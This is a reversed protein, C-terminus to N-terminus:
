YYKNLSNHGVLWTIIINFTDLRTITFNSLINQSSYVTICLVDVSESAGEM